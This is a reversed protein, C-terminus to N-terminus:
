NKEINKESPKRKKGGKSTSCTLEDTCIQIFLQYNL